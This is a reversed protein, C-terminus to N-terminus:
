QRIEVKSCFQPQFTLSGILNGLPYLGSVGFALDRLAGFHTKGVHPRRVLNKSRRAMQMCMYHNVKGVVLVEDPVLVGLVGKWGDPVILSCWEGGASEGHRLCYENFGM